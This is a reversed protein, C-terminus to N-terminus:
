FVEKQRVDMMNTNGVAQVEEKRELEKAAAEPSATKSMEKLKYKYQM